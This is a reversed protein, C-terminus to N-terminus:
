NRFWTISSAEGGNTGGWGGRGVTWITHELGTEEAVILNETLCHVHMEKAEQRMTLANNSFHGSLYKLCQPICPSATENRTADAGHSESQIIWALATFLADYIRLRSKFLIKKKWSALDAQLVQVQNKYKCWCNAMGFYSQLLSLMFQWASLTQWQLTVPQVALCVM